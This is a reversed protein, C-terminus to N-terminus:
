EAGSPRALVLDVAEDPTRCVFVTGPWRRAFVRQSDRLKGKEVKVEILWYGVTGGELIRSVLLDPVGGGLAALSVVSAGVAELAAQIAASNADPKGRRAYRSPNAMLLGKKGWL